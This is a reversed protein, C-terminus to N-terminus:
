VMKKKIKTESNPVLNNHHQPVTAKLSEKKKKEKAKEHMCKHLTNTHISTLLHICMHTLVHSPWLAAEPTMKLSAM